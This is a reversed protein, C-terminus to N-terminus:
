LNLATKFASLTMYGKSIVVEGNSNYMFGAGDSNGNWMIEITNDTPLGKGIESSCIICM